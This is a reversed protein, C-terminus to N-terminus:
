GRRRGGGRARGTGSRSSRRAGGSSSRGSSRGSSSRRSSSRRPTGASSFIGGSRRSRSVARGVVMTRALSGLIDFLGPGLHSSRRQPRRDYDPYSPRPPGGPEVDAPSAYDPRPAPDQPEGDAPPPTTEPAPLSRPAPEEPAPKGDLIAEAADLHWIALDLQNSLEVLAQPTTAAAFGDDAETYLAAAAQYHADAEPNDSAGVEAEMEIIDNAVADVQTQVVQRAEDLRPDLPTDDNRRSRSRWVFFLVAAGGAILLLWLWSTGGASSAAGADGDTVPQGTLESVFTELLEIDSGADLAVDLAADIEDATYVETTGSWGVTEPAVVLVVGQDSREYVADAFTVAEGVPESALVVFSIMEGEARVTGVLEGVRGPSVDAGPEVHVGTDAIDAAVEDAEAARAPAAAVLFVPALLLAVAVFSFGVAARRSIM